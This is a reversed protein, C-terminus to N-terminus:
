RDRFRQVDPEVAERAALPETRWARRPRRDIMHHSRHRFSDRCCGRGERVLRSGPLGATGLPSKRVPFASGPWSHGAARVASGRNVSPKLGAFRPGEVPGPLLGLAAYSRPGPPGCRPHLNERAKPRANAASAAVPGAALDLVPSASSGSCRADVRDSEGLGRPPRRRDHLTTGCSDVGGMPLGRRLAPVNRCGQQLRRLESPRRIPEVMVANLGWPEVRPNAM